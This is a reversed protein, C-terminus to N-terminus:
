PMTPFCQPQEHGWQKKNAVSIHSSVHKRYSDKVTLIDDSLSM